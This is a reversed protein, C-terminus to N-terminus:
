TFLSRIYAQMINGFSATSGMSTHHNVDSKWTGPPTQPRCYRGAGGLGTGWRGPFRASEWWGCCPACSSRLVRLWPAWKRYGPSCKRPSLPDFHVCEDGCWGSEMQAPTLEIAEFCCQNSSYARKHSMSVWRWSTSRLWGTLFPPQMTLPRVWWLEGQRPRLLLLYKIAQSCYMETYKWYIDM